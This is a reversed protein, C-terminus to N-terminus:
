CGFPFSSPFGCQKIGRQHVSTNVMYAPYLLVAYYSLCHRSAGRGIGGQQSTRPQGEGGTSGSLRLEVVHDSFGVGLGTM